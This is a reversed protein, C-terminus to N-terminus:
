KEGNLCRIAHEAAALRAIPTRSGPFALVRRAPKEDKRSCKHGDEWADLSGGSVSAVKSEGCEVCVTKIVMRESTRVATRNFRETPQLKKLPSFMSLVMTFRNQGSRDDVFTLRRLKVSGLPRM